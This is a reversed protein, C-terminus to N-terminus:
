TGGRPVSTCMTTMRPTSRLAACGTSRRRLRAPTKGYGTSRSRFRMMFRRHRSASRRRAVPRAGIRCPHRSPAPIGAPRPAKGPSISAATLPRSSGYRGAPRRSTLVPVPCLRRARGIAAAGAAHGPPPPTTRPRRRHGDPPHARHASGMAAPHGAGRRPHQRHPHGQSGHGAVNRGTGPAARSHGPRHRRPDRPRGPHREGLRHPGAAARTASGGRRYRPAWSTEREYMARRLRLQGDSSGRLDIGQARGLAAFAAHWDARAEPSTKAPEPGIADDDADYGYLERYAGLTAAREQWGARRAPDAPVDGLARIAWAPREAVAHEGIRRTRDDMAAALDTMYRDLDPDGMDPVRGAWRGPPQPVTDKLRRRVRADIVRALHRSGTLPGAEVADRLMDGADRGAAEAERLSRWLWTCAPDSGVAAADGPLLSERLSREFRVAQATRALDYWISGLVGLHDAGSLEARLTETASLVGGDRQVVDALVAAPDRHVTQPQDPQGPQRPETCEPGPRAHERRLRRARRLEAAPRSGARADALNPFGTFCYAYNALRGRSMAVYLWQRTGLGDVLVHTIEVTRGQVAHPTTAYALDCDSFLYARPLEFPGTWAAEGSQDRGLLRRVTVARGGVAEIRLVDRNTLWRGRQGAIISRDNQRAVILDGCSASAGHRLGVEEGAQVDGYRILDDRIRRSMERAQEGTRALLLADRGALHDALFARCAQEIAEEPDGGRLRGQEDYRALVSVDGARLRLSADREWEHAFRVPEALQVYGMQRALMMMGGGGEVAALQEHDGTILVRCGREAALHMIAALDAISMMSAEDLLLLTGPRVTRAARAGHRGRLHGLFQATNAALEVGADRLVNRAAQSTTLGYVEGMGAQRWMAAVQASTRTKGSGAPGVLIEARRDSTMALFAAAAQDLRLGSGTAQQAADAAQAAHGTQAAAHLQAELQAQDAGLLCAALEPALRPAGAQQAQAALREELLLQDRAAYRTGSHPRYISRGDARRLAAPVPPWDPAELPLVLPGAGGALVREALREPLAAAAADDRCTM